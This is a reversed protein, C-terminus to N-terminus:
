EGTLDADADVVRRLRFFQFFRNELLVPFFADRCLGGPDVLDNRLGGSAPEFTEKHLRRGPKERSERRRPFSPPHKNQGLARKKKADEFARAHRPERLGLDTEEDIRLEFASM